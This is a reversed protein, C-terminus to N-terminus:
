YKIFIFLYIFKFLFFVKQFDFSKFLYFSHKNKKFRTNKVNVHTYNFFLSKLLIKSPNGSTRAGTKNTSQTNILSPWNTQNLLQHLWLQRSRLLNAVIPYPMQFSIVPNCKIYATSERSKRNNWTWLSLIMVHIYAM